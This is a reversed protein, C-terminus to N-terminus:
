LFYSTIVVVIGMNPPLSMYVILTIIELSISDTGEQKGGLIM